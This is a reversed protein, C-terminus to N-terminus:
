RSYTGLPKKIIFRHSNWPPTGMPLGSLRYEGSSSFFSLLLSSACTLFSSRRRNFVEGAVRLIMAACLDCLRFSLAFSRVESLCNPPFYIGPLGAAACVRTPGLRPWRRPMAPPSSCGYNAPFNSPDQVPTSPAIGGSPNLNNGGTCPGGPGVCDPNYLDYNFADVQTATGSYNSIIIDIPISAVNTTAINCTSQVGVTGTDCDVEMQVSLYATGGHYIGAFATYNLRGYPLGVIAVIVGIATGVAALLGILAHPKKL